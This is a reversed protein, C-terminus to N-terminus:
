VLVLAVHIHLLAYRTGLKMQSQLIPKRNLYKLRDFARLVLDIRTLRTCHTLIGKIGEFSRVAQFTHEFVDDLRAHDDDLMSMLFQESQPVSGGIRFLYWVCPQLNKM